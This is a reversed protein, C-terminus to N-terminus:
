WLPAKKPDWFRLAGEERSYARRVAMDNVNKAFLRYNWGQQPVEYLFTRCM